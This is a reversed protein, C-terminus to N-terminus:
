EQPDSKQPAAFKVVTQGLWTLIASAIIWNHNADFGALTATLTTGLLSISEGIAVWVHPTPATYRDKLKKLM